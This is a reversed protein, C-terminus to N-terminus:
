SGLEPVDNCEEEQVSAGNSQLTDEENELKDLEIPSKESGGTRQLLTRERSTM